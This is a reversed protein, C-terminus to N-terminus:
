FINILRERLSEVIEKLITVVRSYDMRTPGLVGLICLNNNDIAFNTTIISYEQLEKWPNENGISITIKNPKTISKLINSIFDEEELLSLFNRAKELDRFEPFDLMKSSGFYYVKGGDKFQNLTEILINILISIVEEHEIMEHKINEMLEPTIEEITKYKLFTNLLNTIRILDSDKIGEPIEIIQHVVNGLNTIIVVLGKKDEIKIIEIHKLYSSTLEPGLILATYNTLNSITKSTEEIFDEVERIKKKLLQNIMFIDSENLKKCNMLFDVYFRYGKDSPIRGASTYPQSIYGLEELDAMENRITAPSIGMRYKRAITRSGVPEATAIYDDVIARLIKIKREDLM